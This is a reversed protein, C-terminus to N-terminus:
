LKKNKAIDWGFKVPTGLTGDPKTVRYEVRIQSFRLASSDVPVTDDEGGGTEFSTILVDSFAFTLFEAKGGGARRATLVASKMHKGSACAEMLKPSAKSILSTFHFDQFQVKGSGAGSGPGPQGVASEGWSWSLVEIEDKHKADQSEGPIGDIKLFYDVAM